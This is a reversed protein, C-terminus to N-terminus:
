RAAKRLARTYGSLADNVISRYASIVIRNVGNHSRANAYNEIARVLRNRANRVEVRTSPRRVKNATRVNTRASSKRTATTM